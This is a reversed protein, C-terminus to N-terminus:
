WLFCSTLLLNCLNWHIRSVIFFYMTLFYFGCPFVFLTKCFSPTAFIWSVGFTRGTFLSILSWLLLHRVWTPLILSGCGLTRRCIYMFRFAPSRYSSGLFSTSCTLFSSLSCSFSVCSNLIETYQKPLHSIFQQYWVRDFKPQICWIMSHWERFKFKHSAILNKNEVISKLEKLSIKEFVKSLIPLFTLPLKANQCFLSNLDVGNFLSKTTWRRWDNFYLYLLPYWSM